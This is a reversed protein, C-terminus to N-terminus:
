DYLLEILIFEEPHDVIYERVDRDMVPGVCCTHHSPSTWIADIYVLDGYTDYVMTDDMPALCKRLEYLSAPYPISDIYGNEENLLSRIYESISGYGNDAAAKELSQFADACQNVIHKNWNKVIERMKEPRECGVVVDESDQSMDPTYDKFYEIATSYESLLANELRCQISKITNQRSGENKFDDETFEGLTTLVKITCAM